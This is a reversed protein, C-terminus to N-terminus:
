KGNVVKRQEGFAERQKRVINMAQDYPIFSIRHDDIRRGYEGSVAHAKRNEQSQATKLRTNDLQSQKEEHNVTFILVM